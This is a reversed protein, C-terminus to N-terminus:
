CVKSPDLEPPPHKDTPSFGMHYENLLPDFLDKFVQFFNYIVLRTGTSPFDDTHAIEIFYLFMIKIIIMILRPLTNNDYIAFVDRVCMCVCVRACVLGGGDGNQNDSNSPDTRGVM